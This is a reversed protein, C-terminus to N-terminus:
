PRSTMSTSLTHLIRTTFTDRFTENLGEWEGCMQNQLCCRLNGPATYSRQTKLSDGQNEEVTVFLVANATHDLTERTREAAGKIYPIAVRITAADSYLRPDYFTKQNGRRSRFTERQRNSSLSNLM